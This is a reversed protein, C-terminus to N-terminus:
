GSFQAVSRQHRLRAVGLTAVDIDGVLYDTVGGSKTATSTIECMSSSQSIGELARNKVRSAEMQRKNLTLWRPVPMDSRSAPGHRLQSELHPDTQVRPLALENVALHGADGHCVPDLTAALACGPSTSTEEVTLSRTAAPPQGEFVAARVLELANPV